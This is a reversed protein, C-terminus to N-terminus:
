SISMVEVFKREDFFRKCKRKFQCPYFPVDYLFTSCKWTRKFHSFLLEFVFKGIVLLPGRNKLSRLHIGVTYKMPRGNFLPILRHSVNSHRAIITKFTHKGSNRRRDDFRLRSSISCWSSKARVCLLAHLFTVNVKTLTHM